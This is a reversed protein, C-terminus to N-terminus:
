KGDSGGKRVSRIKSYEVLRYKQGDIEIIVDTFPMYAVYDGIKVKDEINQGMVRDYAQQGLHKNIADKSLHAVKAAQLLVEMSYGGLKIVQGIAVGDSVRGMNDPLSLQSKGVVQQNYLEALEERKVEKCLVYGPTPDWDIIPDKPKDTM